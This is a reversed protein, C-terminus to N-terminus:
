LQSSYLFIVVYNLNNEYPVTIKVFNCLFVFCVFLFICCNWHVRALTQSEFYKDQIPIRFATHITSPQMDLEIRQRTHREAARIAFSWNIPGSAKPQRSENLVLDFLDFRYFVLPPPHSSHRWCFNFKIILQMPILCQCHSIGSGGRM